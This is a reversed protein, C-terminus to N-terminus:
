SLDLDENGLRVESVAPKPAKETRLPLPGDSVSHSLGRGTGIWFSGDQDQLFVNADNWILGNSTDLYSWQSGAHISFGKDTDFWARRQSDFHLSNVQSSLLGTSEDQHEIVQIGTATARIHTAGRPDWYIV